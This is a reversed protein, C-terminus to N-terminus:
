AERPELRNELDLEGAQRNPNAVLMKRQKDGFSRISVCYICQLLPIPGSYRKLFIVFM